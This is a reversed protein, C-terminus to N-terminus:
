EVLPDVLTLLKATGTKIVLKKEKKCECDNCECNDGCDCDRGCKECKVM